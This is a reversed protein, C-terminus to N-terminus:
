GTETLGVATRLEAIRREETEDIEGDAASVAFAVEVVLEAVARVRRIRRVAAFADGTGRRVDREIAACYADFKALGTEEDFYQFLDLEAFTRVVAGRESDDITGDAAAVLAAAAMTADAIRARSPGRNFLGGKLLGALRGSMGSSIKQRREIRELRMLEFKHAKRRRDAEQDREEIQAVMMEAIEPHADIVPLLVHRPVEYVVAYELCKVTERRTGSSVFARLGFVEGPIIDNALFDGSEEGDEDVYALEAAARGRVMFFLRDGPENQASIIEPPAFARRDAQALLRDMEAPRLPALLDFGELVAREDASGVSRVEWAHDDFAGGPGSHHHNIGPRIGHKRFAAWIASFGETQAEYWDDDSRLFWMVRYDMGYETMGIAYVFPPPDQLMITANRLEETIARVVLDPPASFEATVEHTVRVRNNPKTYILFQKSSLLSNPYVVYSDSTYQYVTITRWNIDDVYGYVDDIQVHDGKRVTRSAQLAVGSFLEGLTSQASYGIIFAVAGSTAAIATIPRGFVFHLVIMIAALYVLVAVFDTLLKPMIPVGQRTLLGRWVFRDIGGNLAFAASIWFLTALVDSTTDSYHPQDLYKLIYPSFLYALGFFAVMEFGLVFQSKRQGFLKQALTVLLITGSALVAVLGVIELIGETTEM